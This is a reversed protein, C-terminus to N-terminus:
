SLPFATATAHSKEFIGVPREITRLKQVTGPKVLEVRGFPFGAEAPGPACAFCFFARSRPTEPGKTPFGRDALSSGLASGYFLLIVVWRRPQSKSLFRLPDPPRRGESCRCLVEHAM